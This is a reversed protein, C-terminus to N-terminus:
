FKWLTSGGGSTAYTAIAQRMETEDPFLLIVQSKHCAFGAQWAQLGEQSIPLSFQEAGAPLFEAMDYQERIVYPYDVYHWLPRGQREAALRTLVHDRHHGIALPSVLECGPSINKRLFDAVLPILYSEDPELPTNIDDPVTIMAQDTGPLHRYICDPVTYRQFGAGLVQCCTTDEKSRSYPVDQEGLEWFMHLMQAYDSLPKDNPTDGACITWIEVHDGKKTLEWVLGGASLVVDDFHPSLFVWDTM